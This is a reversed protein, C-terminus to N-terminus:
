KEPFPNMKEFGLAVAIEGLRFIGMRKDDLFSQSPDDKSILAHSGEYVFNAFQDLDDALIASQLSSVARARRFFLEYTPDDADQLDFYHDDIKESLAILLAQKEKAVLDPKGLIEQIESIEEVGTQRIITMAVGIAVARRRDPPISAAWDLAEKNQRRSEYMTAEL